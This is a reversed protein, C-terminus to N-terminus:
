RPQSVVDILAPEGAKVVQLARRIADRLQSPDSIPGVGFVGLGRAISAYDINPNTLTTGIHANRVDRDMRNAMRQLHMTEQHYARNNFMVTLLPIKHHAATWLAGPVFMLDGDPQFNIPLRGKDRHALAAGVAAPLGYGVGAGGTAGTHHYYKDMTWLRQAWGAPHTMMGVLAWDETKVQDWVEMATRASSVPSLDWGVAAADLDSKRRARFQAELAQRRAALKSALPKDILRRLHAILPPLSEEADANIDLDAAVYRQFDQFNSRIAEASTGLRVVKAEAAAVRRSPRHLVDRMRNLVGWMDVAELALVLDAEAIADRRGLQNLPHTNPFNMRTGSDLVPAQILDALEVLRAMATPSQAYRDAYIVPREAAVLLAALEKLAGDDGQAPRVRTMKPISLSKRVDAPIPDEQLDEDITVIVPARPVSTAIQVARVQSEAFHQLSVPSDDWKTYDRVMAANDQAAHWWAVYNRRSAANAANGILILVPVRDGFANYIAMAAHQVGVTGHMIAAMM